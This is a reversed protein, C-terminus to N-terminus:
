QIKLLVKVAHDVRVEQRDRSAAYHLACQGNCNVANVQADRGILMKVIQLHGASAAIM